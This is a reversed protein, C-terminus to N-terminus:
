FLKTQTLIGQKTKMEGFCERRFREEQDNFYETDVETSYFDFGMKYAVIRSSGSGLHTDLIKDGKKAYKEFLFHYLSIPKQTPHIRGLQNPSGKFIRTGGGSVWAFEAEAFDRNYMTEGKDWIAFYQSPPLDFYNGGWIVQRKSVRFLEKFYDANPACDDWMKTKDPAITKRGGMNMTTMRIGYPPDVVALDFFKEPITRMYEMCDMNYAESIM